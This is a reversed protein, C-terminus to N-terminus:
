KNRPMSPRNGIDGDRTVTRVIAVTTYGIDPRSVTRKLSLYVSPSHGGAINPSMEDWSLEGALSSRDVSSCKTRTVKAPSSIWSDISSCSNSLSLSNSFATRSFRGHVPAHLVKPHSSSKTLPSVRFIKTSGIQSVKRSFWQKLRITRWHKVWASCLPCNLLLTLAIITGELLVSRTSGCANECMELNSAVITINFNPESQRQKLHRVCQKGMGQLVTNQNVFGGKFYPAEAAFTM